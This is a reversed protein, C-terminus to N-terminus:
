ILCEERNRQKKDGFENGDYTKGDIENDKGTMTKRQGALPCWKIASTESNNNNSRWIEDNSAIKYWQKIDEGVIDM